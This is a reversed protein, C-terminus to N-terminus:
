MNELKEVLFTRFEEITYNKSSDMLLNYIENEDSLDLNYEKTCLYYDSNNIKKLRVNSFIIVYTFPLDILKEILQENISPLDVIIISRKSLKSIIFSILDVQLQIKEEYSLDMHSAEFGNKIITPIILKLLQKKELDIKFNLFLNENDEEVADNLSEEIDKIVYQLTQYEETYEIKEMKLELFRYLLSKIGLKFDNKLDFINSIEFFEFDNINLLANDTYLKSKYDMELTYESDREKSFYNKFSQIVQYRINYDQTYFIKIKSLYLKYHTGYSVIELDIM